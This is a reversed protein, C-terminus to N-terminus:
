AIGYMEYYGDHAGSSFKLQLANIASTTNFYGATFIDNAASSDQMSSFRAYFHKVHTTDAPSFLHLIGASSEDAGNGQNVTLTQYGTGQALDYSTEYAFATADAETHTARFMTTTKAVNYNSGGDISGNFEFIAGDTAPNYDTFVIMYEDYSSTIGSTIEHASVGDSAYEAILTLIM